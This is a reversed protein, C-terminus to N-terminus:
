ARYRASRRLNPSDSTGGSSRSREHAAAGVPPARATEKRTKAASTPTRPGRELSDSSSEADTLTDRTSSLGPPRGRSSASLPMWIDPDAGYAGPTPVDPVSDGSESDDIDSDEGPFRLPPPPAADAPDPAADAPVMGAREFVGTWLSQRPFADAVRRELPTITRQPAADKHARLADLVENREAQQKAALSAVADRMHADRARQADERGRLAVETPHARLLQPARTAVQVWLADAVARTNATLMAFRAAEFQSAGPAPMRIRAREVPAACRKHRFVERAGAASREAPDAALLGLLFRMAADFFASGWYTDRWWQLKEANWRTLRLVRERLEPWGGREARKKATVVSAAAERGEDEEGDDEEQVDETQEGAPGKSEAALAVSCRAAADLDWRQAGQPTTAATRLRRRFAASLSVREACRAAPNGPDCGAVLTKATFLVLDFMVQAFLVGYAYWDDRVSLARDGCFVNPPRLRPSFMGASDRYTAADGISTALGPDALKWRGDAGLLVNAAKIDLHLLGAAHMASLGCWVEAAAALRYRRYVLAAPSLRAAAWNAMDDGLARQALPLLLALWPMAEESPYRDAALLKLSRWKPLRVRFTDHVRLVNPHDVYLGAAAEGLRVRSEGAQASWRDYVLKLAWPRCAADCVELVTGFTGTGLLRVVAYKGVRVPLGDKEAQRRWRAREAASCAAGATGSDAIRQRVEDEESIEDDELTDRWRDLIHEQEESM